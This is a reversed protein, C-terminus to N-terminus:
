RSYFLFISDLLSQDKVAELIVKFHNLLDNELDKLRLEAVKRAENDTVKFTTQLCQITEMMLDNSM